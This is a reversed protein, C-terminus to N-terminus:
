EIIKRLKITNEVITEGPSFISSTGAVYIDAGMKHMREANEFSVNGDVEIMIDRKSKEEIVERCRKIKELTAPVLRQGAFGPNVTMILIVDIDDLLDEIVCLPNGPNLALGVKCGLKKVQSLARQIHITSEYHISIIDDPKCGEYLQLSNEPNEIMLHIDLPLNSIRRISKIFDTSLTINPVFHNDMIDIHFYDVGAKELERVSKEVNMLDVCMLSPSIKGGM